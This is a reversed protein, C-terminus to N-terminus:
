AAVVQNGLAEGVDAYLSCVGRILSRSWSREWFGVLGRMEVISWCIADVIALLLLSVQTWCTSDHECEVLEELSQDRMLFRDPLFM